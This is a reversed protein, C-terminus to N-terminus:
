RKRRMGKRYGKGFWGPNKATAVTPANEDTIMIKDSDNQTETDLTELTSLPDATVPDGDVDRQYYLCTLSGENEMCFTCSPKPKPPRDEQINESAPMQVFPTYFLFPSLQPYMYMPSFPLGMSIFPLAAFFPAPYASIPEQM